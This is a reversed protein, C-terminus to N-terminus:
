ILIRPAIILILWYKSKSLTDSVLVYISKAQHYSFNHLKPCWFYNQWSFVLTFRIEHTSELTWESVIWGTKHQHEWIQPVWQTSQAKWHLIARVTWLPLISLQASKFIQSVEFGYDVYRSVKQVKWLTWLVINYYFYVQKPHENAQFPLVPCDIFPFLTWKDSFFFHRFCSLNNIKKGNTFEKYFSLLSFTKHDNEESPVISYTSKESPMRRIGAPQQHSQM